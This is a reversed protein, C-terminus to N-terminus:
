WSSTNFQKAEDSKKFDKLAKELHEQALEPDVGKQIEYYKQIEATRESM